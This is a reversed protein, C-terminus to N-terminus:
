QSEGPLATTRILVLPSQEFQQAASIARDLPPLDAPLTVGYKLSLSRSVRLEGNQVAVSAEYDFRPNRLSVQAPKGALEWGAPLPMRWVREHRESLGVFFPGRDPGNWEHFLREGFVLDPPLLWDDQGPMPPAPLRLRITLGCTRGGAVAADPSGAAEGEGNEDSPELIEADPFRERLYDRARAALDAQALCARGLDSLGDGRLAVSATDSGALCTLEEVTTGASEQPDGPLDLFRCWSQGRVLQEYREVLHQAHDGVDKFVQQWLEKQRARLNPELSLARAGQLGVPLVGAVGGEHGPAYYSPANAATTVEVVIDSFQFPDPNDEDLEGWQRDRALLMRVPLGAAKCLAYLLAGQELRTAHRAKLVTKAPRFATDAEFPDIQVIEKQVFQFLAGAQARVTKQGTVLERAKGGLSDDAKLMGALLDQFWVAAENWCSTHVWRNIEPEFYGRYSAVVFPAWELPPPAYPEDLVPRVDTVNFILDSTVGRERDLVYSGWRDEPLNNGFVRYAIKGDTKIRVEALCIPHRDYLMFYRVPMLDSSGSVVSWGLVDGTHVDPFAIIIETPRDKDGKLVRLSEGGIRTVVGERLRWAGVSEIKRSAEYRLRQTGVEAREQDAVRLITNECLRHDRVTANVFYNRYLVVAPANSLDAAPAKVAAAEAARQVIEEDTREAISWSVAGSVAPLLVCFLLSAAAGARRLGATHRRM